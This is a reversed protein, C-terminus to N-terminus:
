IFANGSTFLIHVINLAKITQVSTAFDWSFFTYIILKQRRSTMNKSM